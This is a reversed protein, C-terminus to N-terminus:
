KEREYRFRVVASKELTSTMHVEYRQKGATIVMVATNPPVRGLNDAYMILEYDVDSFANVELNLAKDTLMKKYLLLRNNLLVTVTDGDLEANDYLQIKITPTHFVLEKELEKKRPKLQVTEQLQALEDSQDIDTKFVPTTARRLIIKGSPCPQKTDMAYGKFEGKLVEEHNASDYQLMYTKICPVCDSPISYRIVKNEIIVIRKSLPNFKGSFSLQVLRETDYFDYSKGQLNNNAFNIQMEINYVPFCGGSDQILSGRWIGALDQATCACCCFLAIITFALPHKRIM